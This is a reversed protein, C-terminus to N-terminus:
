KVGEVCTNFLKIGCERATKKEELSLVSRHVEELVIRYVRGSADDVLHAKDISEIDRYRVSTLPTFEYNESDQDFNYELNSWIEALIQGKTM